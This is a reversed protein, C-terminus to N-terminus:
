YVDHMGCRLRANLPILFASIFSYKHLKKTFIADKKRVNKSGERGDFCIICYYLSFIFVFVNM